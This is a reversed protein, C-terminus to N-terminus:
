GKGGQIMQLGQPARQPAQRPAPGFDWGYDLLRGPLDAPAIKRYRQAMDSKQWGGKDLLGGFDKTASYYWTAWTHRLSHPVVDAGLGAADRAKDFAAKIQGGRHDSTDASLLYPKGKPTLFIRGTDPVDAALIADCARAPLSIMRPHGNKTDPLWIERTNPYFFQAQTGLAESVRAGSGLLCFLIPVLHPDAHGILREAEEPTLWRTRGPPVKRRKFIRHRTLDNAAAMTIVASIPTILQRNITAPAADPYLAAAATNIAGNDIDDVLTDAGFHHLIRPLYRAQGGSQMYTLAAEAFTLTAAKGYAHRALIESERRIRIADAAARNSTGTSEFVPQGAVTGRLYYNGGTKRRFLKYM